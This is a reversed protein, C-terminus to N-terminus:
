LTQLVWGTVDPQHSLLHDPPCILVWQRGQVGLGNLWDQLSKKVVGLVLISDHPGIAVLRNDVQKLHPLPLLQKLYSDPDPSGGLAKEGDTKSDKQIGTSPGM